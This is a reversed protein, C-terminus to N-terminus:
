YDINFYYINLRKLSVGLELRTRETAICGERRVGRSYMIIMKFQPLYFAFFYFIIFLSEHIM